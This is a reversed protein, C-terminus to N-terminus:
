AICATTASMKGRFVANGMKVVHSLAMRLDAMLFHDETKLFANSCYYALVCISILCHPKFGLYNLLSPQFWPLKLSPQFWPLKLSPQFWPLEHALNLVLTISAFTSIL